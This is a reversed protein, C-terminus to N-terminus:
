RTRIKNGKKLAAVIPAGPATIVPRANISRILDLQKAEIAHILDWSVARSAAATLAQLLETTKETTM